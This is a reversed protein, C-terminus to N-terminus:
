VRYRNNGIKPIKLTLNNNYNGDVRYVLRPKLCHHFIRPYVSYTCSLNSPNRQARAVLNYYVRAGTLVLRIGHRHHFDTHEKLIKTKFSIKYVCVYCIINNNYIIKFLTPHQTANM